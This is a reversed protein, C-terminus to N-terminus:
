KAVFSLNDPNPPGYTPYPTGGPTPYSAGGSTPYPTGGPTPYHTGGPTPYPAGGPTPYPAEGPTPYSPDSPVPYPASAASTENPYPYPMGPGTSPYPAWYPQPGDGVDSPPLGSKGDINLPPQPQPPGYPLGVGDYGPQPQTAIADYSPPPMTPTSGDYAPAPANLPATPNGHHGPQKPVGDKKSFSRIIVGKTQKRKKFCIFVTFCIVCVAVVIGIIGGMSISKSTRQRSIYEQAMGMDCCYERHDPGCCYIYSETENERPCIFYGYSRGEPSKQFHNTCIPPMDHRHQHLRIYRHGGYIAGAMAAARWTSASYRSSGLVRGTLAVGAYTKAARSSSFSSRSRSSRISISRGGGGGRKGEVDSIELLVALLLWLYIVLRGVSAM